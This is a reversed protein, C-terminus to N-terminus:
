LTEVISGGLERTRPRAATITNDLLEACDVKKLECFKNKEKVILLFKACWFM